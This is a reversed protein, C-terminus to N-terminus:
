AGGLAGVAASGTCSKGVQDSYSCAVLGVLAGGAIGILGGVLAGEKWYTPRIDREVSDRAQQLDSSRLPGRRISTLVSSTPGAVVAQGSLGSGFPLTGLLLLLSTRVMRGSKM